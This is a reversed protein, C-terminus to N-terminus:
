YFDELVEEGAGIAVPVIKIEQQGIPIFLEKDNIEYNGVKVCYNQEIM